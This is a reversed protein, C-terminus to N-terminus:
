PHRGGPIRSPRDPLEGVREVCDPSRVGPLRHAPRAVHGLATADLKEAAGHCRWTLLGPSGGGPRSPEGSPGRRLLGTGALAYGPLRPGTMAELLCPRWCRMTPSRRARSVFSSASNGIAAAESRTELDRTFMCIPAYAHTRAVGEIRCSRAVQVTVRPGCRAAVVMNWYSLPAAQYPYRRGPRLGERGQADIFRM